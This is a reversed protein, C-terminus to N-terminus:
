HVPDTATEDEFVVRARYRGGDPFREQLWAEVFGEVSRRAPERALAVHDVARRRCLETLGLRLQEVVAAENRLISGSRVVFSLKSVDLAPTNFQLAPVAVVLWAGDLTFTWREDLDVYYTYEVPARAEVIVDPLRLEGWLITMEDKREFSEGTDVAAVQLRRTGSVQTAYSVFSTTLTGQQFARAVAGLDHLLVRGNEALEHPLARASHLVYLSAGTIIAVILVLAAALARM